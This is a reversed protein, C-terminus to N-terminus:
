ALQSRLYALEQQKAAIDREKGAIRGEMDYIKGKVEDEERKLDKMVELIDSIMSRLFKCMAENVEGEAILAELESQKAQLEANKSDQQAKLQAALARLEALERRLDEIERNLDQLEKEAERIEKELDLDDDSLPRMARSQRSKARLAAAAQLPEQDGVEGSKAMEEIARDFEAFGADEQVKEQAVSIEEEGLIEQLMNGFTDDDVEASDITKQISSTKYRRILNQLSKRDKNKELMVLKRLFATLATKALSLRRLDSNAYGHDIEIQRLDRFIDQVLEQKGAKKAAVAQEVKALKTQELVDLDRHKKRQDREIQKLQLRIDIASPTKDFLKALLNM